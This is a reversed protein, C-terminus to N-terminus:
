QLEFVDAQWAEYPATSGAARVNVQITYIGPDFGSSTNWVWTDTASMDQVKTWFLGNHLHFEYEYPGTGGQGAATYTVGGPTNRPQPSTKDPTLTAGTATAATTLKFTVAKYAEFSATSGASRVNVQVTYIGAAAAATNWVWESNSSFAQVKSWSFGNHQWFEFEYSGSGGNGSASFTVGGATNTPQPSTKDTNLTAETAPVPIIKFAEAKWAEFDASSGVSRVNVQITYTGSIAATTDWNWNNVTSFPRVKLWNSGDHRWFEYEYSGSGGSGTATFTVGGATNNPQPSTKNINLTVGTAAAPIIRFAEAKSSEFAATSGANRVNVQITYDTGPVAATTDWNLTATTSYAQVKTWSTGDHRWFEYEYSGSGGSGAATFTFQTGVLQPSTRNSNLTVGTAPGAIVIPIRATCVVEEFGPVNQGRNNIFKVTAHSNVPGTTRILGDFRRATTQMIPTGAPVLYAENSGFPEVGLARGDWAIIVVDVPLTLEISNYAANLNRILITQNAVANISVQSGSVGSNLAAPIVIGPPITATGGKTTQVPVGTVYWYDADYDNFAFFDGTLVPDGAHTHFNDNFGPRTGHLPFTARANPALDSWVSDRDDMVWLAEVDYAVTNGHPDTQFQIRPDATWPQNVDPVWPDPATILNPNWDPFQPFAILNAAIRRKGDRCHGIPIAPNALTAFYADPPEILMLFYLGFEFHQVTNRHCHAFYSGIFQPQLQYTYNGIEMSCHGVGDNITTPEMGHWHITHPPPGKGSTKCHFVVGRPMRLTSSPFEDNTVGNLDPNKFLFFMMQNPRLDWTDLKIGHMLELDVTHPTAPPNQIGAATLVEPVPNTPLLLDPTDPNETPPDFMKVFMGEMGVVSWRTISHAPNTFSM